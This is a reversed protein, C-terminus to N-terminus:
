QAPSVENKTALYKERQAIFISAGIILAAGLWLNGSPAFGFILWGGLVNLPLKIHDFPQIYAADASAYAKSLFLQASITLTGALLILWLAGDGSVSFGTTMLAITANIPTLFVMLYLTVTQPPESATLTKTLLSTIAWFFAAAVPLLLALSFEDAWPELIIMGGIFGVLTAAWRSPGTREKLFLAAGMTVFFPSTMILAIAQWIPVVALGAVWFQVGIAAAVVRVLHLGIQNTRFQALGGRIVLLAGIGLAILYQWFAATAPAIGMRMTAGQILLNSGAFGIGAAVMYLGALLANNKTVTPVIRNVGVCVLSLCVRWVLSARQSNEEM